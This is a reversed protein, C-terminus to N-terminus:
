LSQFTDIIKFLSMPCEASFKSCDQTAEGIQQADIFVPSEAVAQDNSVKLVINMLDGVIGDEHDPTAAVECVTRKLCAHGNVGMRSIYKELTNFISKKPSNGSFSRAYGSGYGYGDLGSSRAGAAPFDFQFPVSLTLATDIDPLPVEVSVSAGLKFITDETFARKYRGQQSRAQGIVSSSNTFSRFLM